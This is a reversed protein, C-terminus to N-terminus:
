EGIPQATPWTDPDTLKDQAEILALGDGGLALSRLIVDYTAGTAAELAVATSKGTVRHAVFLATFLDGAGKPASPARPTETLWSGRPSCYLAGIGNPTPTSTVLVAKGICLAARRTKRVEDTPMQTLHELEWVNPTILDAIPLLKTKIARVVNESVFLGREFDGIVPDCVYLADPNVAKLRQVAHVIFDIQDVEALYGSLLVKVKKLAGSAELGVFISHLLPAPVPGGGPAGKDPRRGLLTTPLAIVPAGVREMAFVAVSNGVRDAAVQSQISLITM